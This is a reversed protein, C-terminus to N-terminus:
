LTKPVPSSHFVCKFIYFIEGFCASSALRTRRFVGKKTMVKWTSLVKNKRRRRPFDKSDSKKKIKQFDFQSVLSIWRERLHLRPSVGIDSRIYKENDQKMSNLKM